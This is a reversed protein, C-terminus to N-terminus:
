AFRKKEIFQFFPFLSGRMRCETGGAGGESFFDGCTNYETHNSHLLLIPANYNLCRLRTKNYGDIFDRIFRNREEHCYFSNKGSNKYIKEKRGIAENVRRNFREVMGNTQPRRIKTLKHNIGHRICILDVPHKGTAKQKVFGWCRDTWEFGNDTIIKIVEYPFHGVFREVFDAATSPELNYLIEAYVYRTLRDIAVYLYSRKGELKTLYKVDMHIHGCEHVEEFPQPAAGGSIKPRQAVGCRRMARYISSRTLTSNICRQMVEVIDDLSLGVKTRLEIVIEEDALSLSSLLNHRKHSKDMVDKRKKWKHVTSISIGFKEALSSASSKSTQIEKRIAPTTKALKHLSIKM